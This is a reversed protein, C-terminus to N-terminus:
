IVFGSTEVLSQSCCCLFRPDAPGTCRPFLHKQKKYPEHQFFFLPPLFFFSKKKSYSYKSLLITILSSSIFDNGLMSSNWILECTYKTLFNSSSMTRVGPFWVHLLFSWGILFSDFPFTDLTISVLVGSSM